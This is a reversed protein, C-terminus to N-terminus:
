SQPLPLPRVIARCPAGDSREIRLPLCILEYHGPPVDALFLGEILWIDAGLLLHHTEKGDPGLSGVSLYDVGVTRVGREVLYRAADPAIAVFDSRFPRRVWPERSNHTKFLIREGAAIDHRRLEAARIATPDAISVVRAPGITADLPMTDLGAGEPLFHLPGDMHTGTHAGMDLSSVNAEDGADLDLSRTIRVPPDGPWNVMGDHLPVSIDIWDTAAPM